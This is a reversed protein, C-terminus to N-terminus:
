KDALRELMARIDARMAEIAALVQENSVGSEIRAGPSSVYGPDQEPAGVVKTWDGESEPWLTRVIKRLIDARVLEGSEARDWTGANVGATVYAARKTGYKRERERRILHGLEVQEDDTIGMHVVTGPERLFM